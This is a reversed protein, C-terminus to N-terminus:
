NSLHHLLDNLAHIHQPHGLWLIGRYLTLGGLGSLLLGSIRVLRERLSLSFLDAFFAVLLLAPVTGAGFALMVLAGAGASGTSAAKGLMAYILGCPLFGLLAGLPLARLMRPFRLVNEFSRALWPRPAAATARFMSWHRLLGALALGSAIMVAGAAIMLLAQARGTRSFLATFSGLGGAAAGLATYTALRGLHFVLQQPLVVSWSRAVAGGLSSPALSVTAPQVALLAVFGGCMGVCHLSLLLGTVFILALEVM